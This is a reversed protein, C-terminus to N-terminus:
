TGFNGTAESFFHLFYFLLCEKWKNSGFQGETM